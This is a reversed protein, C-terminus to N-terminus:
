LAWRWELWAARARPAEAARPHKRGIALLVTGVTLAVVGASLLVAASVTATDYDALRRGIEADTCPMTPECGAGVDARRAALVSYYTGVGGLALGAAGLIAGAIIKGRAPREVHGAGSPAVRALTAAAREEDDGARLVVRGVERCADFRTIEAARGPGRRVVLLVDSARCLDGLDAPELAPRPGLQRRVDDLAARLQPSEEEDSLVFSPDLRLLRSFLARARAVEGRALAISARRVQGEVFGAADSVRDPAGAGAEIAEDLAAAAEDLEGRWALTRAEDLRERLPLAPRAAAVRGGLRAAVRAAVRAATSAQDGDRSPLAVARVVVPSGHARGPALTAVAALALLFHRRWVIRDSTLLLAGRRLPRDVRGRQSSSPGAVHPVQLAMPSPRPAPRAAREAPSGARM